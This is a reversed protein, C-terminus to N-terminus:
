IVIKIVNTQKIFKNKYKNTDECIEYYLIKLENLSKCLLEAFFRRTYSNLKVDSVILHQRLTPKKFSM